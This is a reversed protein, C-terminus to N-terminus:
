GAAPADMSMSIGTPLGHVSPMVARGALETVQELLARETAFPGYRLYAWLPDAGQAAHWLEGAHDGGLPELRAARGQFPIREPLPWPPTPLAPM